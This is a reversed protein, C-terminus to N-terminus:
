MFRIEPGTREAVSIPKGALAIERPTLTMRSAKKQTGLWAFYNKIGSRAQMNFDTSVAGRTFPEGSPINRFRYYIHMIKETLTIFDEEACCGLLPVSWKMTVSDDVPTWKGCPGEVPTPPVISPEPPPTPVKVQAVSHCSM